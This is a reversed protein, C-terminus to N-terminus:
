LRTVRLPNPLIVSSDESGESTGRTKELQKSVPQGLRGSCTRTLLQLPRPHEQHRLSLPQPPSAPPM